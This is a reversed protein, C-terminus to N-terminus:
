GPTPVPDRDRTKSCCGPMTHARHLVWEIGLLFVAGFLLGGIVDSIWHVGLYVRSASIIVIMFGALVVSAWWVARRRTFLGVVVPVMGWLAVAAMPHGSPFSYGTGEVLRNYDPRDRGVVEKMVFEFAPRAFTAAVLAIAVARCRRWVLIALLPGLTLVV